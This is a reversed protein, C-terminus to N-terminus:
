RRQISQVPVPSAGPTNKPNDSHPKIRGSATPVHCPRECRFRPHVDNLRACIMPPSASAAWCRAQHQSSPFAPRFAYTPARMLRSSSEVTDMGELERRYRRPSAIWASAAVSRRCRLRRDRASEDSRRDGHEQVAKLYTATCIVWRRHPFSSPRVPGPRRSACGFSFPPVSPARSHGSSAPADLLGFVDDCVMDWTQVGYAAPSAVSAGDLRNRPSEQSLAEIVPSYSSAVGQLGGPSLIIPPGSGSEEYYLEAGNVSATAM